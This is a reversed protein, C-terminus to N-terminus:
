EEELNEIEILDKWDRGYTDMEEDEVYTIFKQKAEEEDKAAVDYYGGWTIRYFM